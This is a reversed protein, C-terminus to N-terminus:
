IYPAGPYVKLRCIFHLCIKPQIHGLPTQFNILERHLLGIIEIQRDSSDLQQRKRISLRLLEFVKISCNLMGKLAM